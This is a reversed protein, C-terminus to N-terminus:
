SIVTASNVLNRADLFQDVASYCPTGPGQLVLSGLRTHPTRRM